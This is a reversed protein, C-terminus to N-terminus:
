GNVVRLLTTRDRMENAENAAQVLRAITATACHSARVNAAQRRDTLRGSTLRVCTDTL